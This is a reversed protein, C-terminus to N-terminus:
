CFQGNADVHHFHCVWVLRGSDADHGFGDIPIRSHFLPADFIVARNKRGCVFDMEEWVEDSRNVMDACMQDYRGVRQLDAVSPMEIWGTKRHRYFATGYRDDHDSLYVVATHHGSDRDSHIYARQRAEKNTCRFFSQNPIAVGTHACLAAHLPAHNGAFGMGDYIHEGVDGQGPDWTGFGGAKASAIVADLESCFNDIVRYTM